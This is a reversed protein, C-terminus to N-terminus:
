KRVEKPNPNKSLTEITVAITDAPRQLANELAGIATQFRAHNDLEALGAAAFEVEANNKDVADTAGVKFQALAFTHQQQSSEFSATKTQKEAIRYNALARDIEGIVQSQLEVFKAAALRRRAKAEAVPGGNHNLLPLELTVNLSWKNDGQDYQYAPGLHIDPYQKAIELRLNDEAEAYDALAGLIDSRSLLAIKRTEAATL